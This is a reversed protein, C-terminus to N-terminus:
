DAICGLLMGQGQGGKRQRLKNMGRAELKEGSDRDQDLCARALPGFKIVPAHVEDCSGNKTENM